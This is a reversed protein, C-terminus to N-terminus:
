SQDEDYLKKISVRFRKAKQRCANSCFKATAIGEFTNGCFDCKHNYIVRSHSMVEGRNKCLKNDVYGRGSTTEHKDGVMKLNEESAFRGNFKRVVVKKKALCLKM